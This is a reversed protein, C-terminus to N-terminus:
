SLVVWGACRLGDVEHAVYAVHDADDHGSELRAEEAEGVNFLLAFLLSFTLALGYWLM